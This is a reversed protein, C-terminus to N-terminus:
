QSPDVKIQRSQIEKTERSQIEDHLLNAIGGIEISTHGTVAFAVMAFKVIPSPKETRSSRNAHQNENPCHTEWFDVVVKTLEDKWPKERSGAKGKLANLEALAQGVSEKFGEIGRPLWVRAPTYIAPQDKLCDPHACTVIVQRM